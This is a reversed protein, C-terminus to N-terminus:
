DLEKMSSLIKILDDYNSSKLIHEFGNHYCGAQYVDLDTSYVVYFVNNNLFIETAGNWNEKGILEYNSVGYSIESPEFVFSLDYKEENGNHSQIIQSVIVGDPLATPYLIGEFDGAVLADEVSDYESIMKGKILTIKGNDTSDGPNANWIWGINEVIFEWAASGNFAAIVSVSLIAVALAAALFYAAFRMFRHKKPHKTPATFNKGESHIARAKAKIRVLGLAYEEQSIEPNNHSLFAECDSCEDILEQDIEPDDKELEAQIIAFLWMRIQDDSANTPDFKTIDIKNSNGM